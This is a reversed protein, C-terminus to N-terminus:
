IAPIVTLNCLNSFYEGNGGLRSVIVDMLALTSKLNRQLTYPFPFRTLKSHEIDFDFWVLYVFDLAQLSVPLQAAQHPCVHVRLYVPHLPRVLSHVMSLCLVCPLPCLLRPVPSHPLCSLSSLSYFKPPPLDRLNLLSRCCHFHVLIIM